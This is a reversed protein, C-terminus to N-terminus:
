IKSNPKMVFYTISLEFDFSSSWYHHLDNMLTLNIVIASNQKHKVVILYPWAFYKLNKKFLQIHGPLTTKPQNTKVVISHSWASTNKKKKGCNFIALCLIKVFLYINNESIMEKM